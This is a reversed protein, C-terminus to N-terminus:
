VTLNFKSAVMNKVIGYEKLKIINHINKLHQDNWFIDIYQKLYKQTHSHEILSKNIYEVTGSRAVGIHLGHHFIDRTDFDKTLMFQSIKDFEEKDIIDSMFEEGNRKEIYKDFDSLTMKNLKNIKKEYKQLYKNVNVLHLGTLRKPTTGRLINYFSTDLSKILSIRGQVIDETSIFDVDGIYCYKFNRYIDPDVIQRYYGSYPHVGVYKHLKIDDSVFIISYKNAFSTNKDIYDFAEYINNDMFEKQTIIFIHTDKNTKLTSYVYYPLYETYKGSAIAIVALNNM